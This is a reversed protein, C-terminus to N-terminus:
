GLSFFLLLPMITFLPYSSSLRSSVISSFDKPFLLKYNKFQVIYLSTQFISLALPKKIYIKKLPGSSGYQPTRFM